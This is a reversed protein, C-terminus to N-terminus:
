AGPRVGPRNGRHRTQEHLRLARDDVGSLTDVVGARPCGETVQSLEEFRGDRRAQLALAGEGLCMRQGQPRSAAGHGLRHMMEQRM